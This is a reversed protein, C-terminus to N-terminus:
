NSPAFGTFFDITFFGKTSPLKLLTSDRDPIRDLIAYLRSMRHAAMIGVSVSPSLPVRHFVGIEFMRTDERATSGRQDIM